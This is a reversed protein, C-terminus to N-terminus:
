PQCAAPEIETGDAALVQILDVKISTTVPNELSTCIGTAAEDDAPSLSTYVVLDGDGVVDISDVKWRKTGGIADLEAQADEGLSKDIGATSPATAASPTASSDGGGGGGCGAAVLSVGIATALVYKM